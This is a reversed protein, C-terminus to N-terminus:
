PEQPPGDDRSRNRLLGDLAAEVSAATAAWRLRGRTRARGTSGLRGRLERDVLLQHLTRALATVDAEPVLIGGQVLGHLERNSAIAYAAYPVGRAAAETLALSWGECLSPLALAASTRIVRDLDESDNPLNPLHRAWAPLTPPRPGEGVMLLHAEPIERRVLAVARVADQPRKGPVLRGLFLVQTSNPDPGPGDPVHDVGPLAVTVPSRVLRRAVNATSESVSVVADPRLVSLLREHLLYRGAGRVIGTCRIRSALDVIDHTLAVLPTDTRRTYRSAPVIAEYEAIVIDARLSRLVPLAHGTFGRLWRALGRIGTPRAPGARHVSFGDMAELAPADRQSCTIVDVAHGRDALAGLLSRTYTEAGGILPHFVPTLFAIRHGSTNM